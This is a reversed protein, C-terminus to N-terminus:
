QFESTRGPDVELESVLCYGLINNFRQNFFGCKESAQVRYLGTINVLWCQKVFWYHTSVLVSGPSSNRNRGPKGQKPGRYTHIDTHRYTPFSGTVTKSSSVQFKTCMMRTSKYLFLFNENKELAELMSHVLNWTKREFVTVPLKRVYPRVSMCLVSVPSVRDFGFNM